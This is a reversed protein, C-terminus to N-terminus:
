ERNFFEMVGLVKNGSLVPFGLGSHLGVKMASVSRPCGPESVVDKIWVAKGTQWIRGPLGQGVSFANGETSQVFEAAKIRSSHWIEVPRIVQAEEDIM